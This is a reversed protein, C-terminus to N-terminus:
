PKGCWARWMGRLAAEFNVAFRPADFLPSALVQGRLSSRLQALSKLDTAQWVARAVYDDHDAAIWQPLGASMAMSVGQRSMFRQGALTIVPVGMWLGEASTTAGTYPFPDLAIDIRRYTALYDARPSPGELILREAGIGRQAFREVILRRAADHKLQCAKLLLRSEPISHLIRAWVALVDDGVKDIRNLCAFTVFGNALAPLPSPPLQALDDDPPTLCWLTEPLRWVTETFHAEEEPLVTWRDAVIYDIAAVGTTAHYGLWSLQLPAAKWAFLPLRNHETHGSLDILIDIGDSRIQRTLAEDCLGAVERWAHCCAKIRATLADAQANNSYALLEIAGGSKLQGLVSELFYAVPHNRFDGSVLGVRLRKEPAKSNQWDTCPIARRAARQGFAIADALMTRPDHNAKLNAAFLLNDHAAFFYPDIAIAKRYCDLAEDIRGLDKLTNGLNLHAALFAPNIQLARQFCFLAQAPQGLENLANGLDLHAEAFDPRIALAARYSAAANELQGLKVLANGRNLHAEAYDPAADLARCYCEVAASINGFDQLVVGMNYHAEAFGPDLDLALRYCRMADAPQGLLKLLNGLDLHAGACDPDIKLLERYVNAADAHRELAILAAAGQWLSDVDGPDIELARRYSALALDFQGAKQLAVGFNYHGQIDGTLLLTAQHMVALSDKGIMFRAIGLAKWALGCAPAREVLSAARAELELYRAAGLLEALQELEDATPAPLQPNQDM